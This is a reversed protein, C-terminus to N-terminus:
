PEGPPWEHKALIFTNFVRCRQSPYIMCTPWSMTLPTASIGCGRSLFAISELSKWKPGGGETGVRWVKEQPLPKRWRKDRREHCDTGSSCIAFQTCAALEWSWVAVAAHGHTKRGPTVSAGLSPMRVGSIHGRFAPRECRKAVRPPHKKHAEMRHASIHPKSGAWGFIGSHAPIPRQLHNGRCSSHM